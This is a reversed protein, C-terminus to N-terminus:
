ARPPRDITRGAGAPLAPTETTVALRVSAPTAVGTFAVPVARLPSPLPTALPAGPESPLSRTALPSAKPCPPPAELVLGRGAWGIPPAAVTRGDESCMPVAAGAEASVLVTALVLLASFLRSVGRRASILSFIFDPGV